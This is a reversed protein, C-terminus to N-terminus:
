RKKIIIQWYYDLSSWICVASLLIGGVWYFFGDLFNFIEFYGNAVPMLFVLVCLLPLSIATKIKGSLKAAIPERSLSRLHTSTIDRLWLLAVPLFHIMGLAVMPLYLATLWKDALPDYNKGFNSIYNFKKAYWGDLWDTLSAIIVLLLALLHLQPSTPAFYLMILIPLTLILRATTLINPIQRTM